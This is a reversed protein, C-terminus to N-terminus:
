KEGVESLMNLHFEQVQEQEQAAQLRPAGHATHRTRYPPAVRDVAHCHCAPLCAPLAPLRCALARGQKALHLCPRRAQKDQKSGPVCVGAAALLLHGQPLAPIQQVAQVAAAM